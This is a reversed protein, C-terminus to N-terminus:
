DNIAGKKRLNIIILSLAVIFGGFSVIMSIPINMFLLQDQRLSEIFFRIFAYMVIYSFFIQGDFKKKPLLYMLVSFIIICGFSEYLFTPHVQIYSAGSFDLVEMGQPVFAAVDTRIRMAFLNDTYGGFAEKNFFNGWRGIAQGLAIGPVTLDCVRLFDFKKIRCYIFLASLSLIIGGYIGLGGDRLSFIENLHNKYYDFSFLVYYLRAGIIAFLMGYPIFDYFMESNHGTRKANFVIIELGVFFALAILIGYWYVDIGLLNFAVRSLHEIEINLHPFWIEPM